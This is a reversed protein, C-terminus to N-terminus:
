RNTLRRKIRNWFTESGEEIVQELTSKIEQEFNEKVGVPMKVKPIMSNLKSIQTRRLLIQEQLDARTKLLQEFEERKHSALTGDIYASLIQTEKEIM